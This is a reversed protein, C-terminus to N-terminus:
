NEEYDLNFDWGKQDVNFHENFEDIWCGMIMNLFEDQTIEFDRAFDEILNKTNQKIKFM